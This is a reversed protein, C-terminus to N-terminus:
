RDRLPSLGRSNASLISWVAASESESHVLFRPGRMDTRLVQVRGRCLVFLQAGDLTLSMDDPTACGSYTPTTTFDIVEIARNAYNVYNVFLALRRPHFLLKAPLAPLSLSYVAGNAADHVALEFTVSTGPGYRAWAVFRGDASVAVPGVAGSPVSWDISPGNPDVGIVLPPDSSTLPYPSFANTVIVQTQAFAPAALLLTVLAIVAGASSLRPM